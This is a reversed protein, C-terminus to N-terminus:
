AASESNSRTLAAMLEAPFEEAANLSDALQQASGMNRVMGDSLSNLTWAPTSKSHHGSLFGIMWREGRNPNGVTRGAQIDGAEWQVKM